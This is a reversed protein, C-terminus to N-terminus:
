VVLAALGDFWDDRELLEHFDLMDDWSVPPGEHTHQSAVDRKRAFGAPHSARSRALPTTMTVGLKRLTDVIEDDIQVVGSRNCVPCEM